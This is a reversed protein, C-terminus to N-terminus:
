SQTCPLSLNICIFYMRLSKAIPMIQVIPSKGTEAYKKPATEIYEITKLSKESLNETDEKVINDATFKIIKGDERIKYQLNELNPIKNNPPNNIIFYKIILM